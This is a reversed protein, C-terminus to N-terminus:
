YIINYDYMACKTSYTLIIGSIPAVIPMLYSQGSNPLNVQLDSYFYDHFLEPLIASILSKWFWFYDNAFMGM